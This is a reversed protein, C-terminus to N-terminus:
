SPIAMGKGNTTRRRNFKEIAEEATEFASMFVFYSSIALGTRGKGAKCHISIVSKRDQALYLVADLCLKFVKDVPGPNHDKFPFYAM